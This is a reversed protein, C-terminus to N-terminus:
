RAPVLAAHRTHRDTHMPQSALAQELVQRRWPIAVEGEVRSPWGEGPLLDSFGSAAGRAYPPGALTAPTLREAARSPTVIATALLAVAVFVRPM